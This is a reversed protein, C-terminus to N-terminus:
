KILTTLTLDGTGKDIQFHDAGEGTLSYYIRSNLTGQADADSARVHAIATNMLIDENVVVKHVPQLCSGHFLHYYM